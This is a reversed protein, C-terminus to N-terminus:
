FDSNIVYYKNYKKYKKNNSKPTKSVFVRFYISSVIGNNYLIWKPYIPFTYFDGIICNQKEEISISYPIKDCTQYNYYWSVEISVNRFTEIKQLIDKIMNINIYKNNIKIRSVIDDISTYTNIYEQCIQSVIKEPSNKM